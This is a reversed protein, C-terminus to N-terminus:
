KGPPPIASSAFDQVTAVDNTITSLLAGSQEKDYYSLSLRTLHDYIRVRLDNAVWQGVSETYYNDIYSAIAGLAAIVVATLAAFAALGMTDRSLGFDHIWELWHPLPHHGLANDLIVKLPWPAAISMATEVVMAVLVVLLGAYYPRLLERM